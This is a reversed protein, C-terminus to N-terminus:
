GDRDSLDAPVVGIWTHVCFCWEWCAPAPVEGKYVTGFGGRGIIKQLELGAIPGVRCVPLCGFVEQVGWPKGRSVAQQALLPSKPGGQSCGISTGMYAHPHACAASRQYLEQCPGTHAASTLFTCSHACASTIGARCSHCGWALRACRAMWVTSAGLGGSEEAQAKRSDMSDMSPNDRLGGSEARSPPGEGAELVVLANLDATGSHRPTLSLSLKAQNPAAAAARRRRRRARLLVFGGVVAVLAAGGLVGGLIAALPPAPEGGASGVAEQRPSQLCYTTFNTYTFFARGVASLLVCASCRPMSHPFALVAPCGSTIGVGVLLLTYSPPERSRARPPVQRPLV